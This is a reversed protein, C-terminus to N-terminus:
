SWRNSCSDAWANKGRSLMPSGPVVGAAYHAVHYGARRRDGSRNVGPLVQTGGVSTELAIGAGSRQAVRRGCHGVGVSHPHRSLAGSTRGHASVSHRARARAHNILYRRMVRASIALFHGRDQWDLDKSKALRLFAENVLATPQLSNGPRERRFCREAIRHLDPM